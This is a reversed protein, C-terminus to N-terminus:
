LWSCACISTLKVYRKARTWHRSTCCPLLTPIPSSVPSLSFFLLQLSFYTSSPSPFLLLQTWKRTQETWTYTSVFLVTILIIIMMMIIIFFIFMNIGRDVWHIPLVLYVSSLDNPPYSPPRIVAHWVSTFLLCLPFSTCSSFSCTCAPPLLKLHHRIKGPRQAGHRWLGGLPLGSHHRHGSGGNRPHWRWLQPPFYFLSRGDRQVRHTQGSVWSKNLTKSNSLHGWGKQGPKPAKSKFTRTQRQKFKPPGKKPTTPGTAGGPALASGAPPSANMRSPPSQFVHWLQRQIEFFRTHWGSLVFWVAFGNAGGSSM